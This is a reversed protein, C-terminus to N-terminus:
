RDGVPGGGGTSADQQNVRLTGAITGDARHRQILVQGQTTLDGSALTASDDSPLLALAGM